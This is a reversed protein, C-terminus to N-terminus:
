RTAVGSVITGLRCFFLNTIQGRDETLEYTVQFLYMAEDIDGRDYTIKYVQDAMFPEGQDNIHRPVTIQVITEQHNARAIERNAYASILSQFNPASNIRNAESFDRASAGQPHNINTTKPLRHGLRRLRDPGPSSNLRRQQGTSIFQSSEQVPFIPVIINPITATNRIVKINLVNSRRQSKIMFLDGKSESPKMSPKGVVIKGTPDTWALLNLPELFRQLASLKTEGPETSFLLGGLNSTNRLEMTNSIRTNANLTQIVQKITFKDGWIPQDNISIADQEEYQSLLDRGSIMIREGFQADTEIDVADIIGTSLPQDNCFLSVIDGSKVFKHFSDTTDPAVASFNFTDVPVTIASSFQYTLFRDFYIRKGGELPTIIMSVPPNRGQEDFIKRAAGQGIPVYKPIDNKKVIRKM